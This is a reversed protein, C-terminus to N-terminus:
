LTSNPIYAVLVDNQVHGDEFIFLYNPNIGLIKNML